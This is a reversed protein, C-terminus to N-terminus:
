GMKNPKLISNNYARQPIPCGKSLGDQVVGRSMSSNDGAFARLEQADFLPLESRQPLHTGANGSDTGLDAFLFENITFNKVCRLITQIVMLTCGNSFYMYSPTDSTSLHLKLQM